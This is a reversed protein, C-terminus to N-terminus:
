KFDRRQFVAVSAALVFVIYALGYGVTLIVYVAPVREGWVVQSKIDFSSFDPLVYYVVRALWAVGALLFGLICAMITLVRRARPFRETLRGSIPAAAFSLKLTPFYACALAKASSSARSSGCTEM